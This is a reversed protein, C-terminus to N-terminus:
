KGVLKIKNNMKLKLDITLSYGRGFRKKLFMSSGSCLLRGLSFFKRKLRKTQRLTKLYLHFYSPCQLFLLAIIM